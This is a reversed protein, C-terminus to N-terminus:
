RCGAEYVLWQTAGVTADQCTETVVLDLKRNALYRATFAPRRTGTCLREADLGIPASATAGLSVPLAFPVADRALSIVNKDTGHPYLLWRTVGSTADLCSRTLLLDRHFDGTVDLTEFGPRSADCAPAATLETFAGRVGPFVPLDVNVPPAFGTGTNKHVIWKTTGVNVDNCLTTVLMEPAFDGDLDVLRYTRSLASADCAANTDTASAYMFPTPPPTTPLAFPTPTAAFATGNGRYVRWESTGVASDNCLKTVVLDLKRDGDIDMAQFAPRNAPCEPEAASLAAFALQPMAEPLAYTTIPDFGAGNNKNVLWRTTGVSADTCLSTTVLDPRLDGDVDVLTTTACDPLRPVPLTFRTPEAAFGTGTNAYVRWALPGITTDDCATKVFLDPQQDGTMDRLEYTFPQTNACTATGTIKKFSGLPLGPIVPLSFSTPDAPFGCGTAQAPPGGTSSPPPAPTSGPVAPAPREPEDKECGALVAVGCAAAVSSVVLLSAGARM